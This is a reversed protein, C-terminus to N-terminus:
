KPSSPEPFPLRLIAHESHLSGARVSSPVPAGSHSAVLHVRFRPGPIYLYVGFTLSTELSWVWSMSDGFALISSVEPVMEGSHALLDSQDAVAAELPSPDGSRSTAEHHKPSLDGHPLHILPNLLSGGEKRGEKRGGERGGEKRGEKRREKRGEKRGEKRRGKRGEEGEKWLHINLM